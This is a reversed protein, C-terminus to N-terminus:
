GRRQHSLSCRCDPHRLPPRQGDARRVGHSAAQIAPGLGAVRELGEEGMNKSKYSWLGKAAERISWARATKIAVRRIGEFSRRASARLGSPNRLWTYRTGVLTRDGEALLDKHEGRRTRDVADGIHKAVHFRDRRLICGSGNLRGGPPLLPALWRGRPTVQKTRRLTAGGVAWRAIGQWGLIPERSTTTSSTGGMVRLLHLEKFVIAHDFCERQISGILREVHGNQWPSRAQTM